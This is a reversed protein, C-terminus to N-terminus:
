LFFLLGIWFAMTTALGLNLLRAANAALGGTASVGLWSWALQFLVIVMFLTVYSEVGLVQQLLLFILLGEFLQVATSSLLVMLAVLYVGVRPRARKLDPYLNFATQIVPVVVIVLVPYLSLDRLMGTGIVYGSLLLMYSVNHIGVYQVLRSRWGRPFVSVFLLPVLLSAGYLALRVEQGIEMPWPRFLMVSNLILMMLALGFSVWLSRAPVLHDLYIQQIRSEIQQVREVAPLLTQAEARLTEIEAQAEPTLAFQSM